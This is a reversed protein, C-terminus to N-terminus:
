DRLGVVACGSTALTLPRSSTSPRRRRLHDHGRGGVVIAAVSSGLWTPAVFGISGALSTWADSWGPLDGPYVLQYAVFGCGWALVPAVRFRATSSLDWRRRSTVWFDAAAVAFLPVFVAGIAFLFSQYRDLPVVSALVTAIVGVGTAVWRRDLRGFLNQVSMTTSYIHAFAEDVEDVLLILLAPRV